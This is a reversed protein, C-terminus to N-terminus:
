RGALVERAILMRQIENTGAGIEFLKADRLYREVTYEKMYGYGGHIQIAELACQTAMESSFVKLISSEKTMPNGKEIMDIVDHAYTRAMDLSMAMDALKEQILQFSAIPRGFQIRDKAYEISADLCAQALGVMVASGLSREVDLSQLMGAFAENEGGLVSEEPVSLDEMFIEGTPSSRNGMKHFASGTSLGQMGRDLIFATGGSLGIQEGTRALVIFNEAIPANTIFTKSGNIIFQGNKKVARTSINFADSGVNPETLAWCGMKEGKLLPPLYLMKQQETGHLLVNRGFLVDSVFFSTAFGADVRGIEEAIFAYTMLDVGEGGYQRPMFPCLFGMEGLKRHIDRPFYSKEDMDFLLPVLENKLFRRLNHVIIRQQETKGERVENMTKM